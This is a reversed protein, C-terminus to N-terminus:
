RPGGPQQTVVTRDSSDAPAGVTDAVVADREGIPEDPGVTTDHATQHELESNIEAGLLVVFSTIFLFMLLVVVAALSGYSESYSGFTATYIRFGASAIIWLVVAIVVGWSVWRWEPEDRDPGFRYLIALGVGFGIMLAPWFVVQLVAQLWSPLATADLLAPLAALGVVAAVLFVIAGLTLLLARAKRVVVNRDDHEDYALNIGEILHGMGASASWLSLAIAVILGLSLSGSSQGAMSELQNSLLEKAEAPLGGFLSEVRDAADAPSTVLGAISVLAALAPIVALFGFFAVGAAALVMHDDAVEDKVRLAVDKWGRAPIESPAEADRGRDSRGDSSSTITGGDRGM